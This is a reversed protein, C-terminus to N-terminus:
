KIIGGYIRYTCDNDASEPTSEIYIRGVDSYSCSVSSFAKSPVMSRCGIDKHCVVDIEYEKSINRIKFSQQGDCKCLGIEGFCGLTYGIPIKGYVIAWGLLGSEKALRRSYELSLEPHFIIGSIKNDKLFSLASKNWANLKYDAIVNGFGFESICSIHQWRTIVVNRGHLLPLIRETLESFDPNPLRYYIMKGNNINILAKNFDNFDTINYIIMKAGAEVYGDICDTQGTIVCFGQNDSHDYKSNDPLDAFSCNIEQIINNLERHSIKVKAKDPVNSSFEYM